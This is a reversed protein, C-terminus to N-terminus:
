KKSLSSSLPRRCYPCELSFLDLGITWIPNNMSIFPNGSAKQMLGPLVFSCIVSLGSIGESKKRSEGTIDIVAPYGDVVIRNLSGNM